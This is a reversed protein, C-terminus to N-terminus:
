NKSEKNEKLKWKGDIRVLDCNRTGPKEGGDQKITVVAKDGDVKTDVVTFEAGKMAATAMTGFMTFLQATEATCNDALYEPTAKGAQIKHLVDLAVADPTKAGCGAFGLMAGVGVVVTAMRAMRILKNM